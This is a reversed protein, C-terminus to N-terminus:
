SKMIHRVSRFFDPKDWSHVTRSLSVSSFSVFISISYVRAACNVRRAQRGPKLKEPVDKEMGSLASGSAFIRKHAHPLHRAAPHPHLCYLISFRRAAPFIALDGPDFAPFFLLNVTQQLFYPLLTKQFISVAKAQFCRGPGSIGTERRTFIRKVCVGQREIM